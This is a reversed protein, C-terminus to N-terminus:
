EEADSAKEEPETMEAEAEAEAAAAAKEVYETDVIVGDEDVMVNGNAAALFNEDVNESHMPKSKDSRVYGVKGSAIEAVAVSVPKKSECPVLGEGNEGLMRARKAAMTVLTYRSDVCSLLTSIGPKIMMIFEMGKKECIIIQKKVAEAQSGVPSNICIGYLVHPISGWVFFHLISM